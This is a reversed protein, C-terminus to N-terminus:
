YILELPKVVTIDHSTFPLQSLKGVRCSNCFSLDSVTCSIGMKNLISRLVNMSPHGLRDHWQQCIQTHQVFNVVHPSEHCFSHLRTCPNQKNCTNSPFASPVFSTELSSTLSSGGASCSAPTLRYLGDKLHGRLLVLGFPKDKILCVKSDFEAVVNYDHTLQSVSILNKKMSSVHLVNPLSLVLNPQSQLYSTGVHTISLQKGNGVVVKDGGTYPVHLSLNNLSSTIHNTASSDVFWNSNSLSPSAVFNNPSLILLVVM